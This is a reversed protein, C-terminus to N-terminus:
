SIRGQLLRSSRQSWERIEFKQIDV